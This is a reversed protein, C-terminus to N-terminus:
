GLAIRLPPVSILDLLKKHNQVGGGVIVRFSLSYSM